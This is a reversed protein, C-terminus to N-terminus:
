VTVKVAVSGELPVTDVGIVPVTCNVSLATVVDMPQSLTLTTYLEVFPLAVAWHLVVNSM